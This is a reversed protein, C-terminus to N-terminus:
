RNHIAILGTMWLFARSIMLVMDFSTEGEVVNFRSKTGSHQFPSSISVVNAIYTIYSHRTNVRNHPCVGAYALYRCITTYTTELVSPIFDDSLFTWPAILASPTSLNVLSYHPRLPLGLPWDLLIRVTIHGVFSSSPYEEDQPCIFYISLPISTISLFCSLIHFHMAAEGTLSALLFVSLSHPIFLRGPYPSHSELQRWARPRTVLLLLISLKLIVVSPSLIVVISFPKNHLRTM